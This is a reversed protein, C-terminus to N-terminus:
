TQHNVVAFTTIRAGETRIEDDLYATLTQLPNEAGKNM